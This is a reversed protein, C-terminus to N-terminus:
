DTARRRGPTMKRRSVKRTSERRRMNEFFTHLDYGAEKALAAGAPRVEAVLPDKTM